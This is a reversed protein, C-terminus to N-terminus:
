YDVVAIFDDVISGLYIKNNFLVANTNMKIVKGKTDHWSRIIKGNLDYEVLLGYKPLFGSELAIYELNLLQLLLKRVFPHKGLM